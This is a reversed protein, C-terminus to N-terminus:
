SLSFGWENFIKNVKDTTVEEECQVFVTNLTSTIKTTGLSQALLSIEKVTKFKGISLSRLIPKRGTENQDQSNQSMNEQNEELSLISKISLKCNELKLRCVKYSADFIRSLSAEDIVFDSISISQSVVELTHILKDIFYMVMTENGQFVFHEMYNPLVPTTGHLFENFYGREDPSLKGVNKLVLKGFSPFEKDSTQEIFKKHNDEKMDLTIEFDFNFKVKKMELLEKCLRELETIEEKSQERLPLVKETLPSVTVPSTGSSSGCGM